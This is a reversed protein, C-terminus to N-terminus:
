EGDLLRTTHETVSPPQRLEATRMRRGGANDTQFPSAPPLATREPTTGSISSQPQERKAPATEEAFLRAYLMLTLGTLFVALPIMLPAPGDVLISLGLFVAFLPVSIFMLKAGRRIGKRRASPSAAQTEEQAALAGGGGAVWEALGTLPLGCRSCFRMANGLQQQGCKPCYMFCGSILLVSSRACRIVVPRRAFNMIAQKLGFRIATPLLTHPPLFNEGCLACLFVEYFDSTRQSGRHGRHNM